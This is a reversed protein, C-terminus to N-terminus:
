GAPVKDPPVTVLQQLKRDLKGTKDNWVWKQVAIPRLPFGATVGSGYSTSGLVGEYNKTSDIAKVVEASDTTGARKVADAIVYISDYGIAPLVNPPAHGYHDEYKKYFGELRSGPVPFGYTSFLTGDVLKGLGKTAPTDSADTLFLPVKVGAARLQKIFAPLEPEYMATHIVDPQPNLDRIKSIQPSFDTTGSKFTDTGVVKGGEAEFAEGFYKPFNQTYAFDPGSLTYATKM